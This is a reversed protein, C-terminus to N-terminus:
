GLLNGHEISEVQKIRSELGMARILEDLAQQHTLKLLRDRETRLYKLAEKKAIVLAELSAKKESTWLNRHKGLGGLLAQNIGYWYDVANKSPHLTSTADLIRKLSNKGHRAGREAAFRM